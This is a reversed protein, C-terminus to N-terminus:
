GVEKWGIRREANKVLQVRRLHVSMTHGTEFAIELMGLGRRRVVKGSTGAPITYQPTCIDNRLIVPDGLEVYPGGKYLHRDVPSSGINDGGRSFRSM